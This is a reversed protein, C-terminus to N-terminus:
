KIRIVQKEKVDVDEEAKHERIIREADKDYSEAMERLTVALRQFGANEVDNAQKRCKEALGLEPKGSPDVWHIGRSNYMEQFFGRRLRDADVGNLAEAIDRHIWLGGPDKPSYFLVQGINLLAVELHGSATCEKIVAELWKKFQRGNFIDDLQMGPPIKWRDLLKWMKSAIAKQEESPEKNSKIEIKSRYLLRIVECFFSPESALSNELLKPRADYNEDDLIDLYGLEIKCLENYDVDKSNQLTKIIEIIDYKDIGQYPERSSLASLLVRVARTCNIPQKDLVIKSLCGIAAKPRGYEVLKDIAISLDEETQYPNVSVKEWYEKESDKLLNKVKEWTENTFPLCILFKAIIPKPWKIVDIGDVWRWSQKRYRGWVYGSVFQTLKGSKEELLSPLISSDIESTILSALSFGVKAPSDVTEAFQFIANLGRSDFIQKIAEQRRLELKAQQSHWDGKDEILEYDRETFLRMHLNILDTPALANNVIEIKSINEPSFAWKADSFRKHRTILETLSIWLGVREEEPRSNIEASSLFSLIKDFSEPPLHNLFRVIDTLRPINGKAMDIALNVYFLVQEQYDKSVITKNVDEPIKKRWIPKASGSSMQHQNPLLSLLLKWCAEPLEKQLAKVAIKRKDIAAMTQPLWPLFITTLSNSPRNVWNGGPDHSALGGLIVTIRVLFEEEWALTELAWLLGTLYNAGFTGKGEQSFLMDFPCPNQKLASEVADLFENPAAEALLPLLNDLSGWLLWNADRFIERITLITITEPKRFSCNVLAKPHNGLIALTEALGRRLSSSHKMVKGQISAAFREEPTLEFKPDHERLVVVVCRKFIELTEDFIRSGLVGWLDERKIVSWIGNKIIIPSEPIQLVERIKLIWSSYNGKTIQGVIDKDADSSENWSGILSAYALENSYVQQNWDITQVLTPVLEEPITAKTQVQFEFRIEKSVSDFDLEGANENTREVKDLIQTWLSKTNNQSHQGILTLLLSLVIGEFDLDYILLNFSKLFRWIVEDTVAVGNNAKKLLAQFVEYKNRQQNSTFKALKIRNLFDELTKTNKAQQLLGRVGETDSASLPGCILVIADTEVCFTDNKFDRWAARITENCDRDSKTFKISHKIQGLLKSVENTGPRKAYVILDDINFGQHKGQLKIKSIPWSPLCPSFGKVLMLVVFSAQVRNEFHIGLGGTSSPNSLQKAAASMNRKTRRRVKPIRFVRKKM